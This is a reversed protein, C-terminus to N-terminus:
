HVPLVAEYFAGEPDQAILAGKQLDSLIYTLGREKTFVEVDTMLQDRPIGRLPNALKADANSYPPTTLPHRSSPIRHGSM